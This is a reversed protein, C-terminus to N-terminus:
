AALNYRHHLGGLKPILAVKAYIPTCTATERGVPTQKALGIHTGDEHYYDIFENMLRKFHRENFLIVHDLLDRRCSGVFRPRPRHRALVLIQQPLALNELFLHHRSRLSRVLLTYLLRLLRAM